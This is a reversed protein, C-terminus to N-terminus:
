FTQAELGKKKSKQPLLASHINPLVGGQPIVVNSFLKDLEHDNRVALQLHRPTIRTKKNDKAANGALELTEAVLYELVSAMYVASTPSVRLKPASKKIFRKIRAVPFTIGSKISSSKGM